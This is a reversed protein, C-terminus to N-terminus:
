KRWVNGCNPCEARHVCLKKGCETCIWRSNERCVFERVGMKLINNLNDIMSMGYKKRYRADLQKLRSCPFVDCSFCYKADEKRRDCNLIRCSICSKNKNKDGGLCGPCQVSNERMTAYCVSCNMGCPAIDKIRTKREDSKVRLPMSRGDNKATSHDRKKRVV